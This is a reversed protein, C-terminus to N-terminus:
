SQMVERAMREWAAKAKEVSACSDDGNDKHYSKIRSELVKVTDKLWAELDKSKSRTGGGPMTNAWARSVCQDAVNMLTDRFGKGIGDPRMGTVGGRLWAKMGYPAVAPGELLKLNADLAFAATIVFNAVPADPAPVFRKHLNAWVAVPLYKDESGVRHVKLDYGKDQRIAQLAGEKLFKSVMKGRESDRDYRAEDGTGVVPVGLAECADAFRIRLPAEADRQAAAAAAFGQGIGRLETQAAEPTAFKGGGVAVAVAQGVSGAATGSAAVTNGKRANSKSM